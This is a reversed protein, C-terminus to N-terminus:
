LSDTLIRTYSSERLGQIWTRYRSEVEEQYLLSYIADRVEDLPRIKGEQKEVLKLIQIGNQRPILGSVSGEKLMEIMKVLQPELQDLHFVGLDGGTSAAPGDSFAKALEGFDEGARIRSLIEEGKRQIEMMEGSDGPRKRTLFIGSIRVKETSGFDKKNKEYYEKVAEDRIIIKSRVEFEVLQMRELDRKVKQQFKEYTLGEKELQALFEEHSMRQNEQIKQITAEVQRETVKINLEKVKEEAIKEDIMLDLVRRRTEDFRQPEKARLDDPSFGTVERIRKELEYQTIVENNVIAVVRNCTEASLRGSPMISVYLLFLVALTKLIRNM